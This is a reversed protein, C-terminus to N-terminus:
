LGLMQDLYRNFSSGGSGGGGFLAGGIPGGLVSGGLGFLGGMMANQQQMQANYANMQGQQNLAYGGLTNVNSPAYFSNLGPQQVQQLGLLSAMENFQNGRIGLQEAIQQARAQNLNNLNQQAFNVQNATTQNGYDSQAALQRMMQNAVDMNAGLGMLGVQNNYGSQALRSQLDAMAAENQFGGAALDQGFGAQARDMGAGFGALAAQNGFGARTLAQNLAQDSALNAFQGQGLAQGFAQQAAANGFQGGAMAEGFGQGRAALVDGLARSAESGGTIVAQNALDNYARERSLNFRDFERNAAEDYRPLGRDAFSQRLANERDGFMPDLLARGRDFVAKEVDGRFQQIDQPMDVLGSTNLQNSIAFPNSVQSQIPLGEGLGTQLNPANPINWPTVGMSFPAIGNVGQLDPASLQPLNSFDPTQWQPNVGLDTRIDGFQSLDIPNPNLMGQRQLAMALMNQDSQIQSDLLGQIEPNLNLTATSRNPGSYTLSGYPTYQDIRNFEADARAVEYPDVPKPPDPSKM